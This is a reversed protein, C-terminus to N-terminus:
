EADKKPKRPKQNAVRVLLEQASRAAADQLASKGALQESLDVGIATHRTTGIVEMSQRDIAKVELRAKVSILNGNRAAFESVGEGSIIVDAASRAGSDSDIVKFGLEQCYVAFETEAAPDITTQGVHREAIDIWISPRKGKQLQKQLNAILDERKVEKAILEDARTAVADAIKAALEDTIAGLDDQAGGKASVGVVRSTETGIVKGVLHITSDVQLVSGAILIKAGTLNGVRVAQEPNVLGSLSLEQEELQKKLDERDVLFIGRDSALRAFLLDAVKNGFGQVEAGREQFAIIAVPYAAKDKRQDGVAQVATFLTIVGLAVLTTRNALCYM